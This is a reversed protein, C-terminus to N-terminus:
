SVTKLDMITVVASGGDETGITINKVRDNTYNYIIDTTPLLIPVLVITHSQM